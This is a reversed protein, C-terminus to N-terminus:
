YLIETSFKAVAIFCQIRINDNIDFSTFGSLMEILQNEISMGSLMRFYNHGLLSILKTWLSYRINDYHLCHFVKHLAYEYTVTKCYDCVIPYKREFYKCMLKFLSFCQTKYVPFHRQFIWISSFDYTSHINLFLNIDDDHEVRSKWTCLVHEHM